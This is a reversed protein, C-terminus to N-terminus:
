PLPMGFATQFLAVDALDVAQDGTLDEVDCGPLIGGDPGDLCDHLRRYDDLGVDGDGDFDGRDECEDPIRNHNGDPTAGTAAECLDPMQNGNCDAGTSPNLTTNTGDNRRPSNARVAFDVANDPQPSTLVRTLSNIGDCPLALAPLGFNTNVGTYSGYAVADVPLGVDRDFIVRGSPYSILSGALMVFDPAFGAVAQFGPTAILVTEGNGLAPFSATFDFVMMTVTGEANLAEVHTPGLNTQLAARAILEVYQISGDANTYVENVIILHFDARAAPLVVAAFVASLWLICASSKVAVEDGTVV